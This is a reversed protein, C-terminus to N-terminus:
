TLDEDLSRKRLIRLINGFRLVIEAIKKNM